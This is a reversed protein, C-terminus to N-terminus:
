KRSLKKISKVAPVNYYTLHYMVREDETLKKHWQMSPGYFEISKLDTKSCHEIGDVHLCFAPSYRQWQEAYTTKLIFLTDGDDICLDTAVLESDFFYRWIQCQKPSFATLMESYYKGQANDIHIATGSEQKWGQSELEGYATVGSHIKDALSDVELRIQKGEKEIRRKAKGVSTRANKSRSQWYSEFDKPIDLRATTIYDLTSFHKNDAPRPLLQPDQQTISITLVIGPLASALQKHFSTDQFYFSKCLWMGLPAQSPQFTQWQGWGKKSLICAAVLEQQQHALAMVMEEDAFHKILPSIFRPDLLLTNATKKNLNQWQSSEKDFCEIPHVTWQLSQDAM